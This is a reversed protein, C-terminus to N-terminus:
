QFTGTKSPPHFGSLRSELGFMVFFIHGINCRLLQIIRSKRANRGQKGSAKGDIQGRGKKVWFVIEKDNKNISIL